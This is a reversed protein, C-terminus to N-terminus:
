GVFRPSNRRCSRPKFGNRPRSRASLRWCGRRRIWFASPWRMRWAAPWSSSGSRRSAHRSRATSSRHSTSSGSRGWFRFSVSCWCERCTDRTRHAMYLVNGLAVTGIVLVIYPKVVMVVGPSGTVLYTAVGITSYAAQLWLIAHMTGRWGHGIFQEVLLLLPLLAVYTLNIRIINLVHPSVGPLLKIVPLSVAVRMGYLLSFLGFLILAGAATRRRLIGMLLAGAGLLMMLLVLLVLALDTRSLEVMTM